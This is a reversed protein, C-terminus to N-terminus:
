IEYLSLSYKYFILHIVYILPVCIDAIYAHVTYLQYFPRPCVKFTGDFCVHKANICTRFSDQTSFLAVVLRKDIENGRPRQGRVGFYLLHQMGDITRAYNQPIVQDGANSCIVPIHRISSRHCLSSLSQFSAFHPVIGPYNIQLEELVIRYAENASVMLNASLLKYKQKALHVILISPDPRCLHAKWEVYLTVATLSSHDFYYGGEEIYEGSNPASETLTITGSCGEHKCRYFIKACGSRLRRQSTRRSYM